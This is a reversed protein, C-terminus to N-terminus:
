YYAFDAGKYNIFVNNSFFIFVKESIFEKKWQLRKVLIVFYILSDSWHTSTPVSRHVTIVAFQQINMLFFFEITVCTNCSNTHSTHEFFIAAILSNKILPLNPSDIFAIWGSGPTYGEEMNCRASISYDQRIWQETRMPACSKGVTYRNKQSSFSRWRRCASDFVCKRSIVFHVRHERLNFVFFISFLTCFAKEKGQM